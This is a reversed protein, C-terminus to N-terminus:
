KSTGNTREKKRKIYGYRESHTAIYLLYYSEERATLEAGMELKAKIDHEINTREFDSM